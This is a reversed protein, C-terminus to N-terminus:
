EYKRLVVCSNVDGFGFSASIMTSGDFEESQMPICSRNIQDLVVQHTDECNISPHLFGKQLQLVCAAAELAGAASLSHGILSKLANIKPFQAGKRDLAKSWLAVEYPDFQTATLHGSIADIEEAKIDTARLTGQICAEVAEQNPATMSGGARHGGSNIYGGLIEGFIPAQRDKASEYDELILAGAGGSPIFGKASASLPRSAKEPEDNQGSNLVRLADFGSRVYLGASDCGGCIMRQAKGSQIRDYGMILAETGTSCASANTTVQNGLGLKGGIYASVGSSMINPVTSSGLRKVRKSDVLHVKEAFVDAGPMGAGFICGTNWDPENDPAAKLHAQEWAMLASLVGFQIGDAEMNKLELPTLYQLLIDETIPPVGGVTCRFDYEELIPLKRIGSRGDRLAQEFEEIGIANPSVVGIGTIVVRRNM